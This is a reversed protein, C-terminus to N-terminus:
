PKDAAEDEATATPDVVVEDPTADAESTDDEPDAAEYEENTEAPMSGEGATEVTDDDEM